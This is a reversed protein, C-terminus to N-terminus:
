KSRDQMKKLMEMHGEIVPLTKSAFEKIAPDKAEKSARTFERVDKEHDKVMEQVYERDFGEGKMAKFKDVMKQHEETMKESVTLGAKKAAAKLQENAKGHDDVMKQGFKKVEETKAMSSALKGLEVELM